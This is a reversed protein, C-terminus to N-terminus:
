NDVHYHNEHTKRNPKDTAVNISTGASKLHQYVSRGVIVRGFGNADLSNIFTASRKLDHRKDSFTGRYSGGAGLVRIDFANPDAHHTKSSTYNPKGNSPTKMDGINIVDGPYSTNYDVISNIMRAIGDTTGWQDDPAGSVDNRNYHSYITQGNFTYSGNASNPSDSPLEVMGSSNALFSQVSGDPMGVSLYNETISQSSSGSQNSSFLTGTRTESYAVFPVSGSVPSGNSNYGVYAASTVSGQKDKTPVWELGELENGDIVRNEAFAYTSNYYYSEALPDIQWFRGLAPDSMRYKWEHMNLDLDDTFEQGQFGYKYSGLKNESGYDENIRLCGM